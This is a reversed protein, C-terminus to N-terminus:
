SESTELEMSQAFLARLTEEVCPEVPGVREVLQAQMDLWARAQWDPTPDLLAVSACERWLKAADKFQAAERLVVQLRADIAERQPNIAECCADIAQLVEEETIGPEPLMELTEASDLGRQPQEDDFGNLAWQVSRNRSRAPLRRRPAGPCEREVPPKTPTSPSELALPLMPPPLVLPPMVIPGTTM